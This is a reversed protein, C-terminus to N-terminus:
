ETKVVRVCTHSGCVRIIKQVRECVSTHKYLLLNEFKTALLNRFYESLAFTEEFFSLFSYCFFKSLRKGM